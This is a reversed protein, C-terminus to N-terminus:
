LKELKQWIHIHSNKTISHINWNKSCFWYNMKFFYVNLINITFFIHLPFFIEYKPKARLKIRCKIEGLWSSRDYEDRVKWKRTAFQTLQWVWEKQSSFATWHLRWVTREESAIAVSKKAPSRRGICVDCQGNKLLLLSEKAPCRRGTCVDWQPSKQCCCCCPCVLSGM